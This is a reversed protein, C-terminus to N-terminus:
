LQSVFASLENGARQLATLFDHALGIATGPNTGILVVLLILLTWGVARGMGTLGRINDISGPWTRRLGRETETHGGDVTAM